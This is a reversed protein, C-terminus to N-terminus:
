RNLLYWNEMKQKTAAAPSYNHLEVTKPFYHHVIEALLVSFFIVECSAHLESINQVFFGRNQGSTSGEYNWEIVTIWVLSFEQEM